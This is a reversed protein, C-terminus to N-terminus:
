MSGPRRTREQSKWDEEIAIAAVIRHAHAATMRSLRGAEFGRAALFVYQKDTIPGVSNQQVKQAKTIRGRRAADIAEEAFQQGVLQNMCGKNSKDNWRLGLAEKTARTFGGNDTRLQELLERTMTIM